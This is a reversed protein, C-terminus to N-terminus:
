FYLSSADRLLVTALLTLSVEFPLLGYFYSALPYEHLIALLWTFGRLMVILWGLMTHAYLLRRHHKIAAYLGSLGVLIGAASLTALHGGIISGTFIRDFDYFYVNAWILGFISTAILLTHLFLYFARVFSVWSRYTFCSAVSFDKCCCCCCNYCGCGDGESEQDANACCAM